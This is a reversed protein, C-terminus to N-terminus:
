GEGRGHRYGLVIMLFYWVVKSLLLALLLNAFELGSEHSGRGAYLQLPIHETFRLSGLATPM